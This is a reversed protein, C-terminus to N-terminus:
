LLKTLISAPIDMKSFAFLKKGLDKLSAGIHYVDSRDIILFRDHAQRYTRINIPPYQNNHRTLDLQLQPTIRQTYITADVGTTRKSLMLLTNEDIYNDILILSNKASKILNTAFAYADFIQGDFFIGEVPPLSTRVFFDVKENLRTLQMDYSLFKADVRQELNSIRQNIVHGKLLYDKLVQSAWRRFLTANKSNVRYGVSIIADLNYTKTKYSKGDSATLELISCVSNENLEGSQFINKLHKTIAQRKTEFLEAIQAQTLWVTEDEIRVEMRVSEDPQYLIIEGQQEM